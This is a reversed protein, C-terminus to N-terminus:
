GVDCRGLAQHRRPRTHGRRAPGPVTGGHGGAPGRAGPRRRPIRASWHEGDPWNEGTLEYNVPRGLARWADLSMIEVCAFGHRDGDDPDDYGVPLRLRITGGSDPRAVGTSTAATFATAPFLTSAFASALSTKVADRRTILPFEGRFTESEIRNPVLSPLGAAGDGRAPINM